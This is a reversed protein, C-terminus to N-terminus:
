QSQQTCYEEIALAISKQPVYGLEKRAKDISLTRELGMVTMGYVTIPPEWKGSFQSLLELGRAVSFLLSSPISRYKVQIGLQQAFMDITERVPRPEGNTINYVQISESVRQISLVIADAVNEVHTMDVM